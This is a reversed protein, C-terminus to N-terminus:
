RPANPRAQRALRVRSAIWDSVDSELWAVSRAGLPVPARFHGDKIFQYLSSRSLGTRQQVLPRRLLTPQPTPNLSM